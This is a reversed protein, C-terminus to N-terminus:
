IAVCINVLETYFEMSYHGGERGIGSYKMGGFPVRLDRVFFDNVWVTGVKMAAAVRHARSVDRTQVVGSLGYRTGNAWEIVEEETEFPTVTVVPGFVEDLCIKDQFGAAIVTPMMYNGKSLSGPLILQEGGVLVENGDQKAAQVFGLVRDLHEPAILAGMETKPDMPDDVKIKKTLEIFESVFRDYISKQVFIRSGALCFEGQNFFAAKKAIELARAIDADEFIINAGKGGLEFSYRKLTAAGARMITQGTTTEGTFSVLAVDPHTTLFEGASNPGHGHVVNFVGPPLDAEQAIQALKWAGLPTWEAPKLVVTNGFALAPGIKWTELLLPVNWPTILAAVGVPQRLVYNIYGNEMPYSESGIMTVFDAFFSINAAVRELYHRSNESIPRGVDLTEIRALEDSHKRILDAFRNLIQRRESPKTRSWKEFAQKAAEVAANVEAQGGDPATGLVEGTAPYYVEFRDGGNVFKGNIFHQVEYQM